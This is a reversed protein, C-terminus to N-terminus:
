FTRATRYSNSFTTYYLFITDEELFILTNHIKKLTLLNPIFIVRVKEIILKLSQQEANFTTLCYNSLIFILTLLFCTININGFTQMECLAFLYRQLLYSDLEKEELLSYITPRM